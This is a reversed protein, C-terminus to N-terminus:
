QGPGGHLPRVPHVGQPADPDDVELPRRHRGSRGSRRGSRNQLREEHRKIKRHESYEARVTGGPLPPIGPPQRGRTRGERLGPRPGEGHRFGPVVRDGGPGSDQRVAMQVGGRRDKGPLPRSLLRHRCFRHQSFVMTKCLVCQYLKRELLDAAIRLHGCLQSSGALSDRHFGFHFPQWLSSFCIGTAPFLSQEARIAKQLARSTATLAKQDYTTHCTFEM